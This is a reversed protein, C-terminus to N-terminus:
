VHPQRNGPNTESRFPCRKADYVHWENKSVSPRGRGDDSPSPWLRANPVCYWNHRRAFLDSHRPYLVPRVRSKESKRSSIWGPAHGPRGRSIYSPFNDQPPGHDGYYTWPRWLLFPIPQGIHPVMYKIEDNARAIRYVPRDFNTSRVFDGNENFFSVRRQRPDAVYFLSDNWVGGDTMTMMQGPGRGRGTGYTAVYDGKLTFAKVTFDSDAIYLLNSTGMWIGGPNYLTYADGKSVVFFTDIHAEIWSREFSRDGQIRTTLGYADDTQALQTSSM